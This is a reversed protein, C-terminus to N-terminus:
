RDVTVQLEGRAVAAFDVAVPRPRFAVVALVGVAAVGLTWAIIRRFTTRTTAM